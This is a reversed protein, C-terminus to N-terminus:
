PSSGCGSWARMSCSHMWRVGCVCPVAPATTLPCRPLSPPLSLPRARSRRIRASQLLAIVKDNSKRISDPSIGLSVYCLGPHERALALVEEARAFDPTSVMLAHVGAARARRVVSQLVSDFQRSSLHCSSDFYRLAPLSPSPSSTGDDTAAQEQEQAQLASLPPPALSHRPREAAATQSKDKLLSREQAFKTRKATNLSKKKGERSGGRDGMKGAGSM